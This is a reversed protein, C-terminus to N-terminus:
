RIGAQWEDVSDYVSTLNWNTPLSSEASVTFMVTLLLVLTLFLALAKKM